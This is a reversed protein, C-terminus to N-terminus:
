DANIEPFPVGMTNLADLMEDLSSFEMENYFWTTTGQDKSNARCWTQAIEKHQNCIRHQSAAGRTGNTFLTARLTWGKIAERTWPKDTM